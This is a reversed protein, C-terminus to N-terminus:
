FASFPNILMLSSLDRVKSSVCRIYLCNLHSSEKGSLEDVDVTKTVAVFAMKWPVCECVLESDVMECELLCECGISLRM